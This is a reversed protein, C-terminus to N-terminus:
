RPSRGVRYGKRRRVAGTFSAEVLEAPTGSPLGGPSAHCDVGDVGARSVARGEVTHYRAQEAIRGPPDDIPIASVGVLGGRQNEPKATRVHEVHRSCVNHPVVGPYVTPQVKEE